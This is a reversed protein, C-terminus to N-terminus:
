NVAFADLSLGPVQIVTHDTNPIVLSLCYDLGLEGRNQYHFCLFVNQFDTYLGPLLISLIWSLSKQSM